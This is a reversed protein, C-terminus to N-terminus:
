EIWIPLRRFITDPAPVFHEQWERRVIEVNGEPFILRARAEDEASFCYIRNSRWREILPAFNKVAVWDNLCKPSITLGMVPESVNPISAFIDEVQRMSTVKNPISYLEDGNMYVYINRINPYYYKMGRIFSDLAMIDLLPAGGTLCVTETEKLERVTVVPIDDVDYQKNCCLPCNNLCKENVMLHLVPKTM